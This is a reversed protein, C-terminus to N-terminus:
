RWIAKKLPPYPKKKHRIIKSCASMLALHAVRDSIPNRMNYNYLIKRVFYIHGKSAMELMPMMFAVDGTAMFFKGKHMLDEARIQQFLGAYFTRLHSSVFRYNRFLRKQLVHEPFPRCNTTREGKPNSQWNGYTLWVDSDSGYIEALHCLVDTGNLTDDGDVTVVIWNPDAQKVAHYINSLMGHRQSNHIVHIKEHLHHKRVYAEVLEGTKDQSADDIVVAQWYPYEQKAVSEINEICWKENNYSPIVVYFYPYDGAHLTSFFLLLLILYKRM